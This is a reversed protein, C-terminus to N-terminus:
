HTLDTELHFIEQRMDTMNIMSRSLLDKEKRLRKIDLKLLRIDQLGQDYEAEGTHFTTQLIKMKELLLSLEENRRALQIGQIGQENM